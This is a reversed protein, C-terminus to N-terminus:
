VLYGFMTQANTRSFTSGAPAFHLATKPGPQGRGEPQSRGPRRRLRARVFEELIEREAQLWEQLGTTQSCGGARWLDYARKEIERQLRLHEAVTLSSEAKVKRRARVKM